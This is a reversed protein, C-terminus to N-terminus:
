SLATKKSEPALPNKIINPLTTLNVPNEKYKKISNDMAVGIKNILAGSILGLVLSKGGSVLRVTCYLSTMISGLAPIGYKLGVSIREDKNEAKTLGWGIVGMSTLVGLVDTPASGIKLDRLKEFLKDTELDISKDLSKVAKYAVKKVKQYDKEPLVQRYITLIKQIEGKNNQNDRLVNELDGICSKVKEKANADYVDFEKFHSELNKLDEAIKLKLDTRLANENAGSLTKYEELNKDISKVMGNADRDAPNILTDIDSLIRKTDKYDDDIDHTIERRLTNVKKTNEMKLPAVIEEPIFTKYTEQKTVLGKVDGFTADWVKDSLDPGKKGTVPDIGSFNANIDDLRSAWADGKFGKNYLKDVNQIKRDILERQAEPINKNIRKFTVYMDDFRGMTNRYSNRLTKTSIKEFLNTIWPGFKNLYPTKKLGKNTLVDKFSGINFLTKTYVVLSRTKKLVTLYATQIATNNKSESLKAIKDELKKFYGNVKGYWSNPLGKMLALVGFGAVLATSAITFGLANSKKEKEEKHEQKQKETVPKIIAYSLGDNKKFPAFADPNSINSPVIQNIM